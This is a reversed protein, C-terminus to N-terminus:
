VSGESSPPRCIKRFLRRSAEKLFYRDISGLKLLIWRAPCDRLSSFSSSFQIICLFSVVKIMAIVETVWSMRASVSLCSLSRCRRFSRLSVSVLTLRSVSRCNHRFLYLSVIVVSSYSVSVSSLRSLHRCSRVSISLSLCLCRTQGVSYFFNISKGAGGGLRSTM